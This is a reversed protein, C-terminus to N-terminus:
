DNSRRRTAPDLTMAAFTVQGIVEIEKPYAFSEPTKLSSPHPQLTLIGDKLTCWSCVYGDRHELFYIPRDFESTWGNNQIRRRNQDIVLLTGPPLIPHMSWDATGIYGYTLHRLDFRNLLMLPIKGWQQIFRSVFTTRGLDIGPDLAIPFQVSEPDFPAFSVRHTGTLPLLAADAPQNGLAVGYWGLVETYELRYIVCLSYLRFLSPVTGKNEIDALRSLVIIYEENNRVTAIRQSHEEVDRYTLGLRERVQKLKQGADDMM